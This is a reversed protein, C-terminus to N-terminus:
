NSKERLRRSKPIFNGIKNESAKGTGLFDDNHKMILFDRKGTKIYLEHGKMWEEADKESIELINKKIQKKLMQTGEISLRIRRVGKDDTIKAFYAGVREIITISELKKIGEEELSGLFLFLRERGIAVIEGPIENIGFQEELMRAIEKKESRNVIRITM